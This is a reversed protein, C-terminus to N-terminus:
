GIQPGLKALEALEATSKGALDTKAPFRMSDTSKKGALTPEVPFRANNAAM